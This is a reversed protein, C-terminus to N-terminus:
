TGKLEKAFARAFVLCALMLGGRVWRVWRLGLLGRRRLAFLRTRPKRGMILQLESEGLEGFFALAWAVLRLEIDHVALLRKAKCYAAELVHRVAESPPVSFMRAIVARDTTGLPFAARVDDLRRAIIEAQEKAGMLDTYVDLANVKTGASFDAAIGALAIVCESWLDGTPVIIRAHKRYWVVGRAATTAASHLGAVRSSAWAAVLHGAEHRAIREVHM